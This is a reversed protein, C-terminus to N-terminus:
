EFVIRQAQRARCVALQRDRDPAAIRVHCLDPDPLAAAFKEVFVPEQHRALPKIERGNRPSASHRGCSWASLTLLLLLGLALRGRGTRREVRGM